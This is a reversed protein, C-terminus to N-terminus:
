LEYDNLWDAFAEVFEDTANLWGASYESSFERYLREVTQGSVSLEGHERLYTLIKRMDDPHSFSEPEYKCYVRM